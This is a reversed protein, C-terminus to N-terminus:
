DHESEAGAPVVHGPVAPNAAPEFPLRTYGDAARALAAHALVTLVRPTLRVDDRPAPALGVGKLGAASRRVLPRGRTRTDVPEFGRQQCNACPRQEGGLTHEFAGADLEACGRPLEQAHRAADRRRDVAVRARQARM